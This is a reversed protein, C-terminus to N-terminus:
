TAACNKRENWGTSWSLFATTDQRHTLAYLLVKAALRFSYGMHRYRTEEIAIQITRLGYLRLYFINLADNFLVVVLDKNKSPGDLNRWVEKM